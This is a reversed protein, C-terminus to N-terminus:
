TANFSYLLFAPRADMRVEMIRKSESFYEVRAELCLFIFVAYEWERLALLWALIICNLCLSASYLFVKQLSLYLLHGDCHKSFSPFSGHPPVM